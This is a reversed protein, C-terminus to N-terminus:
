RGAAKTRFSVECMDPNISKVYAVFTLALDDDPFHAKFSWDGNGATGCTTAVAGCSFALAKFQNEAEARTLTHGPPTPPVTIAIDSTDETNM